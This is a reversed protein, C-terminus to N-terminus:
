WSEQITSRFRKKMGRIKQREEQSPPGAYVRNLQDLIEKNRRQRLYNELALSFLRSRSIGMERATHDARVLLEDDLSVATKM